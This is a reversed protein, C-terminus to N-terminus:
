VWPNRLEQKSPLFEVAQDVVGARKARTITSICNYKKDLIAHIM